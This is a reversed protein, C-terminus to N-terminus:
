LLVRSCLESISLWSGGYERAIRTSGCHWLLLGPLGKGKGGDKVDACMAILGDSVINM